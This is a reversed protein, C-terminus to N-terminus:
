WIGPVLRYRVRGAYQAYGSLEAHLTRDEFFTRATISAAAVVAPLLAWWSGLLLAAGISQLLTGSYGPHRVARYPGTTCVAHGRESQIRVATSFYANTIMAWSFLGLGLAFLAAGALHWGLAMGGSWLLRFDLAAVLPLLIYQALAWLGSVVKDWTRTIQAQGREALTDPSRRLMFSANIGVAVIYIGLFLWAWGWDLRGAVGFLIAVEILFSIGLQAARALIGSTTNPKSSPTISSTTTM